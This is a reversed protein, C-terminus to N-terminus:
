SYYLLENTIRLILENSQSISLKHRLQRSLDEEEGQKDQTEQINLFNKMIDSLEVVTTKKKRITTTLKKYKVLQMTNNNNNDDERKRKSTNMFPTEDFEEDILQAQAYESQIVNWFNDVFSLKRRITCIIPPEEDKDEENEAEKMEVDMVPKFFKTIAHTNNAKPNIKKTSKKKNDLDTVIAPKVATVLQKKKLADSPTTVACIESSNLHQKDRFVKNNRKGSAFGFADLTSM